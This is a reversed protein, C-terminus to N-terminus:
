LWTGNPTMLGIGAVTGRDGLPGGVSRLILVFGWAILKYM